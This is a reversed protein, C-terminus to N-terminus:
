PKITTCMQCTTMCCLAPTEDQFKQINGELIEFTGNCAGWQWSVTAETAKGRM